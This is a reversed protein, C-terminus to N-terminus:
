GSYLPVIIGVESKKGAIYFVLSHIYGCNMQGNVQQDSFHNRVSQFEYCCAWEEVYRRTSSYLYKKLVTTRWSHDGSWHFQWWSSNILVASEPRIGMNESSSVRPSFGPLRHKLLGMLPNQHVSLIPFWRVLSVSLVIAPVCSVGKNSAFIWVVGFFCFYLHFTLFM